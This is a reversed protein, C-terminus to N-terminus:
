LEEVGKNMIESKPYSGLVKLFICYKEVDKLADRVKKDVIHGELDIFFIYEWAKRKSPRSEIKTLNIKKKYFPTLVEFLAGPKDKISLMISTKDKGSPPPFEDSIVLFRTFNNKNDEISRKVFKLDYMKAALDSAIAAGDPDQAALEAAKATSTADVTEVEPMNRELWHRCQAFAQPHSYIRRIKKIDGEKSLLNHTIELMIEASVKLDVDMFMDLTYSVVGENSNEIPVVGFQATGELVAEFVDKISDVPIIKAFSGFHRQAALHTFTALPGLCAVKLPEELALSASIIERFIIRLADNPFPGRNLKQLREIIERERQPVYFKEDKKKKIEAVDLVVEARRNLLGLIEEDIRDIEERLKRLEEM